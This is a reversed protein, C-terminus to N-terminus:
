YSELLIETSSETYVQTTELQSRHIAIRRQQADVNARQLLGIESARLGYRYAAFLIAKNRKSRIVKFLQRLEDPM